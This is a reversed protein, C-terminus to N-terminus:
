KLSHYEPVTHKQTLLLFSPNVRFNIFTLFYWFNYLSWPVSFGSKEKNFYIRIRIIETSQLIKM